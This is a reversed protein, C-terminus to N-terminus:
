FCFITEKTVNEFDNSEERCVNEQKICYEGIIRHLYLETNQSGAGAQPIFLKRTFEMVTKLIFLDIMSNWLVMDDNELIINLFLKNEEKFHGGFNSDYKYYSKFPEEFENCKEIFEEYLNIFKQRFNYSKNYCRRNGIESIVLNYLEEHLNMFGIENLCGRNVMNILEEINTPKSPENFYEGREIEENNLTFDSGWNDIFLKYVSQSVINDEIDEISGYDNYTGHIVPCIPEYQNTSYCFGGGNTDAYKQRKLFLLVVRESYVIPLQSIGCTGNYSGM